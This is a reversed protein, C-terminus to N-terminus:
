PYDTAYGSWTVAEPLSSLGPHDGGLFAGLLSDM